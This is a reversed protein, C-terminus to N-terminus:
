AAKENLVAFEGHLRQIAENYASRAEAETKFTGLWTRKGAVTVGAGWRGTRSDLRLGKVGLRHELGRRNMINQSQTCVRINARRNNLGDGDIHDVVMGDPAKTLLRHMVIPVAKDYAKAYRHGRVCVSVHWKFRSVAEVDEADVTAFLGQTLEVKATAGDFVIRSPPGPLRNPRPLSKIAGSRVLKQARQHVRQRSVGAIEAIQTCNLGDAVLKAIEDDTMAM